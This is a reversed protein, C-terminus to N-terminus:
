SLERRSSAAAAEPLHPSLTAPGWRLPLASRRLLTRGPHLRLLREAGPTAALEPGDWLIEADACVHLLDGTAFDVFLLGARPNLELNGLTNFFGNGAYDPITLIGAGVIGVFGPRGGRHSVDVGHAPCDADHASPHVSGIFFTDAAAILGRAAADLGDGSRVDGAAPSSPAYCAERAQIYKPCNGFSQSVRVAIVGNSMGAVIGNLRNRRRTHPEIGILGLPRGEAVLGQLPDTTAPLAAIELREPTPATIFGPPGAFVSTWPQGESDTAAAVIFPLRGFFERHQDTMYARFARTGVAESHQRTGARAQVASEGGHFPMAPDRAQKM